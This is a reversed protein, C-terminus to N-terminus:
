QRHPFDFVQKELASDIKAALSHAQSSVSKPRQGCRVNPTLAQLSHTAELVPAPVKIFHVHLEVALHPAIHAITGFIGM